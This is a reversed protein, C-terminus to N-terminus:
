AVDGLSLVDGYRRIVQSKLKAMAPASMDPDADIMEQALERAVTLIAEDRTLDAIMMPPMGSQRRGM